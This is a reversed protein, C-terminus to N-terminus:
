TSAGLVGKDGQGLIGLVTKHKRELSKELGTLVNPCSRFANQNNCSVQNIILHIQENVRVGIGVQVRAESLDLNMALEERTFM